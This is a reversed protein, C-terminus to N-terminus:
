QLFILAKKEEETFFAFSVNFSFFYFFLVKFLKTMASSEM